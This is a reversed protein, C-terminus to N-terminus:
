HNGYFDNFVNLLILMKARPGCRPGRLTSGNTKFFMLCIQPFDDNKSKSRMKTELQIWKTELQLYLM